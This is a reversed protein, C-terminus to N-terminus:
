IDEETKPKKYYKQTVSGLIGNRGHPLNARFEILKYIDNENWLRKQRPGSQVFEPLLKSMPHEPYENRFKYWINLTPVSCGVLLAVEEARLM